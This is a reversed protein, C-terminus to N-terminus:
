ASATYRRAIEACLNDYWEVANWFRARLEKNEQLAAALQPELDALEKELQTKSEALRQTRRRQADRNQIRRRELRVRMEELGSGGTASPGHSQGTADAGLGLYQMIEQLDKLAEPEIHIEEFKQDEAINQTSARPM